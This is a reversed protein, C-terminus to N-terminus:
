VHARGIENAKFIPSMDAESFERALPQGALLARQAGFTANEASELIELYNPAILYRNIGALAVAGAGLAGATLLGRRSLLKSSM